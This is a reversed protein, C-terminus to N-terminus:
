FNLKLAFQMLRPESVTSTIQGFNSSFINNGPLSFNTNNFLNFVEWRFEVNTQEKIQFRKVANFDLLFRSPGFIPTQPLEGLQGAEPLTFLGSVAGPGTCDGGIVESLCPDFWYVGGAQDLRGSLAQLEANTMGQTLNVTNEGSVASRHFTGVGSYISLPRGTRFNLLGGVQWGGLIKGAGGGPNWSKGPGVPLEYFWNMKLSHRPMFQSTTYYKNRISSPRSDNVLTNEDGDFDSLAKGFTYNGDLSLGAAFRRRVDIQLSHYTSFGDNLMARSSAVFPNAMFFNAPLRGDLVNGWFSGGRIRAGSGAVRSTEVQTLRHAFQGPENFALAQRLGTLGGLRSPDGSILTAMLPNPTICGLGTDDAFSRFGNCIFNDQATKFADLFTQGSEPDLANINIENFDAVRRMGVGRNGVYRVEVALNNAVERSVGLTWENYYPTSMGPEFARFDITSSDLISRSAPLGFPPTEPLIGSGGVDRLLPLNPNPNNICGGGAGASPVCTQVVTLGENDDLNGDLISFADQMYSIRFGARVSTKGDGFPDWAISVVPAFNNKDPDWLPPAGNVPTAATYRTACGSILAVANNTTAGVGQGLLPCPEGQLTGPNFLGAAGSIGFVSDFRNEPELLLGLTDAPVSAWEYRLGLNLTLNSRLQWADQFFLDTEWNQFIHREPVGPIFGSNISTVNFRQVVTEAAGVLNNMLDLATEEDVGSVSGGGLAGLIVDNFGPQFDNDDFEFETQVGFYSVVDVKKRRWEFGGKFNHKGSNWSVADRVHFFENDRFTTGGSPDYVDSIENLDLTFATGFPQNRPFANNGGVFGFRFENIVTPSLTSVLNASLARAHTVRDGLPELAPFVQERDNIFDGQIDRDTYNFTGYFQHRDTLNHDLRFAPLHEITKSAANFRFGGTNLGDGIDFNNPDPMVGFITGTIFPDGSAPNAATFRGDVCQQEIVAQVGGSCEYLNVSRVLGPNAAVNSPSNSVGDLFRFVGNKAQATYVARNVSISRAERTQQYGFFFFTKNRVIPGGIRGGFQNRILPTREVGSSNNFFDNANLVTNRHFNFLSGHFENSGSRTIASIQSGGRSYEASSLGTVVKFEAVNEASMAILPQDIVTASSRNLNDQTDLGDLTFNISRHRQGNVFLKNGQGDPDREFAVGAQQVALEVANRGNLPLDLVRRQDVVDAIEANLTNVISQAAEATVTIEITVEGIELPIVVQTTSGVEVEVGAVVARKFGLSEAALDYLGNRLNPLLFRGNENTTTEYETSTATHVATLLAGPIGAGTEDAVRGDISGTLSQAFVPAAGLGALVLLAYACLYPSSARRLSPRAPVNM